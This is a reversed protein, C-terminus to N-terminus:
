RKGLARSLNKYGNKARRVLLCEECLWSILGCTNEYKIIVDEGWLNRGKKKLPRSRHRHLLITTSDVWALDIIVKKRQQLQYLLSGFLGNESWRKFRTYVTHWSGFCPPLDRWVSGQELFMFSLASFNIIVEKPLVVQDNTILM